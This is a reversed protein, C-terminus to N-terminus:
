DVGEVSQFCWARPPSFPRPATAPRLGTTTEARGSDRQAVALAGLAKSSVNATRSNALVGLAKSSVNTTRSNALAGLAKSSVNGTDDCHAGLAKSATIATGAADWRAGLVETDRGGV